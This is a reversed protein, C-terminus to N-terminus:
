RTCTGARKTKSCFYLFYKIYFHTALPYLIFPYTILVLLDCSTLCNSQSYLSRKSTRDGSLGIDENIPDVHLLLSIQDAM